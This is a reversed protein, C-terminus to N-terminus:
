GGHSSDHDTSKRRGRTGRQIKQASGRHTQLSATNISQKQIKRPVVCKFCVHTVITFFLMLSGHLCVHFSLVFPQPAICLGACLCVSLPVFFFLTRSLSVALGSYTGVMKNQKLSWRLKGKPKYEGIPSATLLFLKEYFDKVRFKELMEDEAKHNRANLSGLVQKLQFTGKPIPSFMPQDFFAPHNRPYTFKGVNVSGKPVSLYKDVVSAGLSSSQQSSVQDEQNAENSTTTTTNRNKLLAPNGQLSDGSTSVVRGVLLTDEPVQINHPREAALYLKGDAYAWKGRINGFYRQLVAEDTDHFKLSDPIVVEQTADNEAYQQFSGDEKLMLLIEELQEEEEDLVSPGSSLLKEQQREKDKPYVTFEKMPYYVPPPPRPKTQTLKWLGAIDHKNLPPGYAHSATGVFAIM